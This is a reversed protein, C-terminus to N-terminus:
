VTFENIVKGLREAKTKFEGSLTDVHDATTANDQVGRELEAVSNNIQQATANQESSSLAVQEILRSTKEIQESLTNFAKETLHTVEVSRTALENIEVSSSRTIEALKQVETAVVAFGKGSSGARAAEISANLSLINTQASIKQVTQIKEFIKETAEVVEKLTTEGETASIQAKSFLEKMSNIYENSQSIAATMEEISASLEETSAAQHSSSTSLSSSADKLELSGKTVVGSVDKAEKVMSVIKNELEKMQLFANALRGIEDKRKLLKGELQINMDGQSFQLVTKTLANIPRSIGSVLFFLLLYTSIIAFFAVTFAATNKIKLIHRLESIPSINVVKYGMKGMGMFTLDYSQGLMTIDTIVKAEQTGTLIKDVIEQSLINAIPKEVEEKDASFVVRGKPDVIWLKSNPTIKENELKKLIDTPDLSVGAIGLPNNSNGILVDVFLLTKNLTKNYDYMYSGKESQKILTFFWADDPNSEDLVSIANKEGRTYYLSSSRSAVFVSPYGLTHLYDMRTLMLKKLENDSEGSKLFKIIFPDNALAFSSELSKDFTSRLEAQASKLFFTLQNKRINELLANQTTRREM